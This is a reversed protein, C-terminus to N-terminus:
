CDDEFSSRGRVMAACRRSLAGAAVSGTEIAAAPDRCSLSLGRRAPVPGKSQRPLPLSSMPTLARSEKIYTKMFEGSALEKLPRMSTTRHTVSASLEM